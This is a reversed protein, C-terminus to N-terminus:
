GAPATLILIGNPILVRFSERFIEVLAEPNLHEVVALMTVVNFYDKAFPLQHVTNLDIAHFNIDLPVSAVDVQDMAYKEKFSTHALFYPMRGSGLEGPILRNARRTRIRALLPELLGYGRTTRDMANSESKM